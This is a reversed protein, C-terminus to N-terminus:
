WTPLDIVLGESRRGGIGLFLRNRQFVRRKRRQAIRVNQDPFIIERSQRVQVLRGDQVVQGHSEDMLVGDVGVTADHQDGDVGVLIEGDVIDVGDLSVRALVHAAEVRM